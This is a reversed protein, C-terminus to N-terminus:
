YIWTKMKKLIAELVELKDDDRNEKDVYMDIDAYEDLEKNYISIFVEDDNGTLNCPDKKGLKGTIGVGYDSSTFDSIAKAMARAVQVSYVTYKDIIEKPVGMKIKYENSYTVASFDLISSAGPINTIANVLAGGTCSEMTSIKKNNQRLFRVIESFDMNDGFYNYVLFPM